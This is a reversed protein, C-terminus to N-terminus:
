ADCQQGYKERATRRLSRCEDEDIAAVSGIQRAYFAVKAGEEAVVANAYATDLDRGVALVGHNALLVIDNDHLTEAAVQALEVSGVPRYPACRISGGAIVAVEAAVAPIEERCCAWATAFVSHTHAVAMVDERRRYVECHLPTEISPRRHGDIVRGDIDIVVIDSEVLGDYDLGSPTICIYGTDRDRLSFNGFTLPVLRDRRARRATEIVKTRESQLLM